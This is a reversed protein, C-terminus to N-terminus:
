QSPNTSKANELAERLDPHEQLVEIMTQRGIEQGWKQGAETSEATLKPLVEVMKKGLPTSYFQIMGKIEEDSLYKDYVPIVLAILTQSDAKSHLKEFFLEILKNRYEGPPFSNVLLPRLTGEMSAMRQFMLAKAGTVELLRRIDAEKAPDISTKAPAAEAPSSQSSPQAPHDNTQALLASSVFLLFVAIITKV